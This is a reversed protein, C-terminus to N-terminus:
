QKVLRGLAVSTQTGILYVGDNLSTVNITTESGKVHEKSLVVKGQLDTIFITEDAFEQNTRITIQNNTPNPFVMWEAVSSEEISAGLCNYNDLDNQFILNSVENTRIPPNFDFYIDALNSIETNQNLWTSVPKAEFIVYGHSEPENTTSDPLQINDFHFKLVNGPLVETWMPHSKGVIRVTNLDLDTDLSDIVAINIAESNGTNQFQVTYTLLQDQKIYGVDCKGVPYVSKINPDYGNVVPSSYYKVNNTTDADGSIPTIITTFHITDGIVAQVSTNFVIQPTLHASDYTIDTFDWILTDGNQSTPAPTSSVFDLLPDYALKLQGSVPSCGDNFANIWTNSEFGPRFSNTILTTKLNNGALSSPGSILLSGTKSDNNSDTVTCTYIGPATVTIVSDTSSIGNQWDFSYPPTGFLGLVKVSGSSNCNLDTISDFYIQLPDIFPVSTGIAIISNHFKNQYKEFSGVTILRENELAADLIEGNFLPDNIFSNDTTGDTNLRFLGTQNALIIKSEADLQIITSLFGPNTWTFDTSFDYNFRKPGQFEGVVLIKGDNQFTYDKVLESFNISNDAAGTTKMVRYLSHWRIYYIKNSIIRISEIPDAGSYNIDFGSDITAGDASIRVMKNSSVGNVTTFGGGIVINGDTQIAISYVTGNTGYGNGIMFSPDITGDSNLRILNNVQQDNFMSFLGGVLIKGDPQLVISRVEYVGSNVVNTSIHFTTDLTGDTNLRAIGKRLIGNYESFSGGILKKGDPQNVIVKITSYGNVGQGDNAGPSPSFSLDVEGDPLLQVLGSKNFNGYTEFMGSFLIKDDPMVNVYEVFGSYPLNSINFSSDITGDQSLRYYQHNPEGITSNVFSGVVIIKGDSQLDISSVFDDNQNSPFVFTTDISGDSNARVLNYKGYTTYYGGFDGGILIKGDPQVALADVRQSFGLIGNGANFTPDLGGDTTLRAIGFTNNNQYENFYGGVVIKGDPQIDMCNIGPGNATQAGVTSGFTQDVAGSSELRVIARRVVGNFTTFRGLVIIKGDSTISLDLIEESNNSMYPGTGIQFSQDLTGDANIRILDKCSVGAYLTFNGGLLIKGDPQIALTNVRAQNEFYTVFTEDISGDSNLKVIGNVPIGNYSILTGSVLIKGDSLVKTKCDSFNNLLGGGHEFRNVLYSNFTTDLSGPQGFLKASWILVFSFLILHKM